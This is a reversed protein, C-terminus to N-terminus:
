EAFLVCLNGRINNFFEFLSSLIIIILFFGTGVRCVGSQFSIM